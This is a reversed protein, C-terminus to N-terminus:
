QSLGLDHPSVDLSSTGVQKDEHSGDRKSMSPLPQRAWFASPVRSAGATSQVHQCAIRVEIPLLEHGQKRAQKLCTLRSILITQLGKQRRESRTGLGSGEREKTSWCTNRGPDM